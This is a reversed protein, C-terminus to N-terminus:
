CTESSMVVYVIREDNGAYGTGVRVQAAYFPHQGLLHMRHGDSLMLAKWAENATHYNLALSEIQNGSQPYYDPLKCGYARAVANPLVGSADAHGFYKGAVMDEARHQAAEVLHQDCYVHKRQQGPDDRMLAFMRDAISNKACALVYSVDIRPLYIRNVAEPPLVAMLPEPNLLAEALQLLPLPSISQVPSVVQTSDPVHTSGTCRSLAVAIILLFITVFVLATLSKM